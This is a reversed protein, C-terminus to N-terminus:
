LHSYSWPIFCGLSLDIKKWQCINLMKVKCMKLLDIKKKDQPQRSLMKFLDAKFM